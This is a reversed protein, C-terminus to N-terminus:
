SMNKSVRYLCKQGNPEGNSTDGCNEESYWEFMQNEIKTQVSECEESVTRNLAFNKNVVYVMKEAVDLFNAYNIVLCGLVGRPAGAPSGRLRPAAPCLDDDEDLGENKSQRAAQQSSHQPSSSAQRDFSELECM